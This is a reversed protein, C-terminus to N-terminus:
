VAWFSRAPAAATPPGPSSSSNSRDQLTLLARVTDALRQDTLARALQLTGVMLTYISFTQARAAGPDHPSVRAAIDDVVTLV